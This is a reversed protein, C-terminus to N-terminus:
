ARASGIPSSPIRRVAASCNGSTREASLPTLSRTNKGAGPRSGGGAVQLARARAGGPRRGDGRSAVARGRDMGRGGARLGRDIRRGVVRNGQPPPALERVGQHHFSNVSLATTGLAQAMASGDAVRVQHSREDRAGGPDHNVPGPHESPLDQWLTGGLGVNVLQFGRCIGLVPLGRQRAMAFLALEFMDRGADVEGLAPHPEEGYLSPAIDEGGSLLLGDIVPLVWAANAAGIAPPLIIPIGGGALVSRVYAANVGQRDAGGWNRQVGTIGIRPATM